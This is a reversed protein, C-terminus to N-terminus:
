WGCPMRLGGWMCGSTPTSPWGCGPHPPMDAIERVVSTARADGDPASGRVTLWIVTGHGQLQRIAEPLGTEYSPEDGDIHAAVYISFLKLGRGELAQLMEPIHQTGTFGLGAYGTRKVLEAQEELPVHQDRGTGNDFVFFPNTLPSAAVLPASVSLITVLLISSLKM